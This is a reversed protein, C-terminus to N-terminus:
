QIVMSEDSITDLVNLLEDQGRAITKKLLINILYTFKQKEIKM